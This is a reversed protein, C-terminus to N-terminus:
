TAPVHGEDQSVADIGRLQNIANSQFDRDFCQQRPVGQLERLAAEVHGVDSQYGDLIDVTLRLLRTTIYEPYTYNSFIGRDQIVLDCILNLLIQHTGFSEKSDKWPSIIDEFTQKYYVDTEKLQRLALFFLEVTYGLGCGDRLDRLRWLQRKMPDKLRRLQVPIQNISKLSRLAMEHGGTHSGNMINRFKRGLTHLSRLQQLLFVLQPLVPSTGISHFIFAESVLAPETRRFENFSVGPLQRILTHTAKDMVDQLLSIRWDVKDNVGNEDGIDKLGSVDSEHTSLIEKVQPLPIPKSPDLPEFARDLEEVYNWAGELRRDIAEASALAAEDSTAFPSQLCALGSVAYQALESLLDVKLMQRIAVLSICTWRATLLSHTGGTPSAASASFIDALGLEGLSGGIEGFMDLKARAKFMLLAIVNICADIRGLRADENAFLGGRNACTALLRGIRQCLDNYITDSPPHEPTANDPIVGDNFAKFVEDWVKQCEEDFSGPITLAFTEMETDETVNSFLGRKDRDIRGDTKVMALQLQGEGM